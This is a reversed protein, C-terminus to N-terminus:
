CHCVRRCMLSPLSSMGVIAFVGGYQHHCCQWQELPLLALEVCSSCSTHVKKRPRILKKLLVAEDQGEWCPFSPRSLPLQVSDLTIGFQQTHWQVPPTSIAECGSPSLAVNAIKTQGCVEAKKELVSRYKTNHGVIKIRDPFSYRPTFFSLEGGLEPM